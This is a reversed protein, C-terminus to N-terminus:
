YMRIFVRLYDASTSDVRRRHIRRRVELAFDTHIM